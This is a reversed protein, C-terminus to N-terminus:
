QLSRVAAIDDVLSMYAKRDSATPSLFGSGTSAGSRNSRASPMSRATAYGSRNSNLNSRNSYRGTVIPSTFGNQGGTPISSIALQLADKIVMKDPTEISTPATRAPSFGGTDNMFSSGSRGLSSMSLSSKFGLKPQNFSEVPLLPQVCGELPEGDLSPYVPQLPHTCRNTTISSKISNACSGEIDSIWNTRKFDKRKEEPIKKSSWGSYAGEIDRTQLLTNDAILNKNKRPKSYKPDNEIEMGFVNYHPDLSNTSRKTRDIYRSTNASIDSVDMLQYPPDSLLRQMRCPILHMDPICMGMAYMQVYM